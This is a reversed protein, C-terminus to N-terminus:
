RHPPLRRRPVLPLAPRPRHPRRGRDGNNWQPVVTGPTASAPAASTTSTTPATLAHPHPTTVEPRTPAAPLQPTYRHSPAYTLPQTGSDLHAFSLLVDTAHMHSRGIAISHETVSTIGAVALDNLSGQRTEHELVGSLREAVRLQSDLYDRHLALHEWAVGTPGFGVPYAPTM